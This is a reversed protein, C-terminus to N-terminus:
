GELVHRTISKIGNMAEGPLAPRTGGKEPQIFASRGEGELARIYDVEVKATDIITKSIENISRAKDLNVTGDKVGELTAFLTARLDEITQSM